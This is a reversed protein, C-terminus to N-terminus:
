DLKRRRPRPRTREYVGRLFVYSSLSAIRKRERERKTLDTEHTARAKVL